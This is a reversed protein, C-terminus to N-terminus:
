AECAVLVKGDTTIEGNVPSPNSISWIGSVACKESDTRGAFKSVIKTLNVRDRCTGSRWDWLLLDGDGGGSILSREEWSPICMRSVFETHGLCYGEIVHAQPEDRSVRIHEDRDSTLIYSKTTASSSAAPSEIALAVDTLMSVHGLLLRHNFDLTKREAVENARKMQDKLAKQNRLTHVTKESAAPKYLDSRPSATSPDRQSAAMSSAKTNSDPAGTLLPLSHVDGFKDACIIRSDESTIKVACPRKLM